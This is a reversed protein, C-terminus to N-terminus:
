IHALASFCMKFYFNMMFVCIRIELSFSDVFVQEFCPFRLDCIGKILCCSLIVLCNEVPM